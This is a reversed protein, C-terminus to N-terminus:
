GLEAMVEDREDENLGDACDLDINDGHVTVMSFGPVKRLMKALLIARRLPESDSLKVLPEGQWTVISYPASM